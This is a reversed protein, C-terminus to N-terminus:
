KGSVFVDVFMPVGSARKTGGAERKKPFEGRERNGTWPRQMDDKIYLEEAGQHMVWDTIKNKEFFPDMGGDRRKGTAKDQM